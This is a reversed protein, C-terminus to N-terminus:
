WWKSWLNNLNKEVIHYTKILVKMGLSLMNDSNGQEENFSKTVYFGAATVGLKTLLLRNNVTHVESM